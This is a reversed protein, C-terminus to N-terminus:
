CETKSQECLQDMSCYAALSAYIMDTSSSLSCEMVVSYTQRLWVYVPTPALLKCSMPVRLVCNQTCLLQHLLLSTEWTVFLLSGSCCSVEQLCRANPGKSNGWVHDPLGLGEQFCSHGSIPKPTACNNMLDDVDCIGIGQECGVPHNTSSATEDALFIEKNM